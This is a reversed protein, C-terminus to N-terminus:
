MFKFKMFWTCCVEEWNDPNWGETYPTKERTNIFDGLERDLKVALEHREDDSMPKKTESNAM